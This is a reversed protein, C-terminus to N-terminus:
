EPRWIRIVNGVQQSSHGFAWTVNDTNILTWIINEQGGDYGIQISILWVILLLSVLTSIAFLHQIFIM